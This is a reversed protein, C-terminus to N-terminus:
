LCFAYLCLSFVLFKIAPFVIKMFIHRIFLPERFRTAFSCWRSLMGSSMGDCQSVFLQNFHPFHVCLSSPAGHANGSVALSNKRHNYSNLSLVSSAPLLNFAAHHKLFEIPALISLSVRHLIYIYSAFILIYKITWKM